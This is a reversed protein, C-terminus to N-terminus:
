HLALPAHNAANEEKEFDFGRVLPISHVPLVCKNMEEGLWSFEFDPFVAKVFKM